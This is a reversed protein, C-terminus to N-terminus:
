KNYAEPMKLGRRAHAALTVISPRDTQRDTWGRKRGGRAAFLYFLSVLLTWRLVRKM